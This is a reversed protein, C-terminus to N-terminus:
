IKEGIKTIYPSGIKLEHNQIKLDENRPGSQAQQPRNRSSFSGSM